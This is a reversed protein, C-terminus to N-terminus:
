DSRLSEIANLKSAQYAPYFGFFIGVCVSVCFGISPPLLFLTFNWEKIIAILFSIFIGLIVGLVGGVLSLIVSEILFLSQIDGPKAGIAKRVGIERKRETVSVLMINMVGIGGVLLSVAGVFALFITLINQQNRMKGVLEQASQFYIEEGPAKQLFYKKIADETSPIDANETLQVLINNIQANKSLAVSSKIPIIAAYNLDEFIFPNTAWPKLVGVITFPINDIQLQQGIPDQVTLTKIKQLISDGIVVYHAYNDFYEVFRGEALNLAVLKALNQTAGTVNGNIHQGQFSLSDFVNIYPAVYQINPSANQMGVALNYTIPVSASGERNQGQYLQVALLNTGLSKFQLLIQRTALEGGSIMAVV